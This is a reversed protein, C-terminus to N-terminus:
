DHTTYQQEATYYATFGVMDRLTAFDLLHDPHHGTQLTTLAEQMARMAASLLTLPYAAIKYGIEELRAPPLLPTDGQELMNAMKPTAVHRCFTVM